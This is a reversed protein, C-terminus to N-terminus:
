PPLLGWGIGGLAELPRFRAKYQMKKSEPVWYGLYLYPLAAAKAAEIQLLVALTGLGRRSEAPEFFTYVASLSQPLHDVVAVALLRGRRRLCWYRVDLWRCELFVHFATRDAPDMGGSAHRAALYRSYLQFHEEDLRKEIRLELDANAARCRRQSRDPRFDAVPVRVPICRTCAHCHPRYAHEGSRRFGQSLLSEYHAPDLPFDPDVFASRAARPPLYGCAHEASLYLRLPRAVTM